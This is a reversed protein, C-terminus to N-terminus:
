IIGNGTLGKSSIGALLLALQAQIAGLMGGLELINVVCTLAVLPFWISGQPIALFLGMSLGQYELM